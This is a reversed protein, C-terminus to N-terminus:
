ADNKRLFVSVSTFQRGHHELVIHPYDDVRLHVLRVAEALDVIHEMTRTTVSFDIAEVLALGGVSQCVDVLQEPTILLLTDEEYADAGNIVVETTFAVIGGAKVVREQQSLATRVGDVGGFHEISSLSYVADFTNDEYRLDLADMYQVVLRRRNYPFPAFADPNRLIGEDAERDAFAGSGYVASAFVWRVQTTLDFIVGERGAAVALVMGDSKLAGLRALGDLIQAYEWHKRHEMGHPFQPQQDAIWPLLRRMTVERDDLTWDELNCVKNLQVDTL